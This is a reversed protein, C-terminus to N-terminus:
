TNKQQFVWASKLMENLELKARWNLKEEAKKTDAYIKEIDGPRRDVLNYPISINNVEEFKEVVELVTYGKGTGINFVDYWEDQPLTYDLAAIHACALDEVHIFDRIATGDSTNYDNGFINLSSRKGAAVECIYPLLNAPVGKPREGIDGSSHAGIPNFYRLSITGLNFLGAYDELLEEGIRKSNGYPTLNRKSASEETVPSVIDDGYVICSSSFVFKKFGSSKFLKMLNIISMINNEYYANPDLLSENTSKFAAFHIIADFQIQNDIFFDVFNLQACNLQYFTIDNQTISKIADLVELSSNSLDDVALVEHGALLLKVCTHSGIYGLAGTVLVKM